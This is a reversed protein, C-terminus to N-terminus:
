RLPRRMWWDRRLVPALPFWSLRMAVLVALVLVALVLVVLVALVLM